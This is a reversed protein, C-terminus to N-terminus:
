CALANIKLITYKGDTPTTITRCKNQQYLKDTTNLLYDDEEMVSVINSRHAVLVLHHLAFEHMYIFTWIFACIKM